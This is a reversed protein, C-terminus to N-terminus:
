DRTPGTNGVRLILEGGATAHVVVTKGGRARGLEGVALSTPIITPLAAARAPPLREALASPPYASGPSALVAEADRRKVKLALVEAGGYREVVVAKITANVVAIM